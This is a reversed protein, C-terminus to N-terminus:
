VWKIHAINYEYLVRLLAKVLILPKFGSSLLQIICIQMRFSVHAISMTVQLSKM